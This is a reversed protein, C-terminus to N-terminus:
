EEEAHRRCPQPKSAPSPATLVLTDACSGLPGLERALAKAPDSRTGPGPRQSRSSSRAVRPSARSKVGALARRLSRRAVPTGNRFVQEVYTPCGRASDDCRPVLPTAGCDHAQASAGVRAEPRRDAGITSTEFVGFYTGGGGAPITPSPLRWKRPRASAASTPVLWAVDRKSM